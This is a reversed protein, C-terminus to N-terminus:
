SEQSFLVASATFGHLFNRGGVPGIEGAAFFGALPIPGLHERLTRADHDPADFMRTGRGNCSFLLGGAPPAAPAPEDGKDLLLSLDETAAAADRVHFQVTQGRRLHDNVVLGGSQPEWGIINRILFDGRRFDEQHEDIAYGIHPGKEFLYREEEPLEHLLENVCQSVPRGALQFIVNQNVATVVYRKGIPRCGQSVVTRIRLSGSLHVGVAGEPHIERDLLLRNRGPASAGSAMGGVLPIGPYTDNFDRLFEDIPFSFPEGLLVVVGDRAGGERLGEPVGEFGFSDRSSRHALHFPRIEVGPLTGLWLGVAPTREVEREGVIISEATCGLLARAGTADVLSAAFDALGDAHHPTLFVFGLDPREGGLSEAAEARISETAARTDRETSLFSRFKM